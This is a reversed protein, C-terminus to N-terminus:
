VKTAGNFFKEVVRKANASMRGHPSNEWTGTYCPYYVKEVEVIEPPLRQGIKVLMIGEDFRAAAKAAGEEWFLGNICVGDSDATDRFVVWITSPKLAPQM